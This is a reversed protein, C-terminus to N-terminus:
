NSAALQTPAIRFSPKAVALAAALTAARTTATRPPAISLPPRSPSLSPLRLLTPLGLLTPVLAVRKVGFNFDEETYISTIESRTDAYALSGRSASPHSLVQFNDPRAWGRARRQVLENRSLSLRAIDSWLASTLIRSGDLNSGSPM